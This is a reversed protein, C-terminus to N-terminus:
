SAHALARLPKFLVIEETFSWGERACMLPLASDHLVRVGGDTIEVPLHLNGIKWGILAAEGPSGPRVVYVLEPRQRVVYDHSDTRFVVAGESLRAELDFGFEEGDEAEGRWRRKLFQRREAWLLVQQPEPRSSRESLQRQILHM